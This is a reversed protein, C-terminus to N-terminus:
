RGVDRTSAFSFMYSGLAVLAMSGISLYLWKLSSFALVSTAIMPGLANGAFKSSNLFGIVRGDLDATFSSFVLPMVAAVMASQIMRVAVFSAVGPTASLFFQLLTGMIGATIILRRVTVRTALRCLLFTGAMATSTYLMVVLGAAKLAMSEEMRFGRFVDPLVSPLFMLQVTATFCLGWGILTTRTVAHKAPVTTEKTEYPFDKVYFYCFVLSIFVFTSASIFAGRYGFATAALAGIPPGILQGLTMSNQFLGIDRSVWEKTSSSSVIIMGVTSIGGMIGQVIRLALLLALSSVFGMLLIIVAHSFLGRIFLAKPSVRSALSGWFTSALAAAFSPAGMILGVWILTEQPSSTGIGHIFFPLFVMVFNFSFAIGFQSLSIFLVNRYSRQNM